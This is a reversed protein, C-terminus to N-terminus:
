EPMPSSWEARQKEKSVLTDNESSEVKLNM